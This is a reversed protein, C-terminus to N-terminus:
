LPSGPHDRLTEMVQLLDGARVSATLEGLQASMSVLKDALVNQLCFSLTELRSSSM